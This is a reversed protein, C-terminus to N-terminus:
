LGLCVVDACCLVACRLMCCLVAFHALTKHLSAWLEPGGPQDDLYSAVDYVEVRVAHCLV